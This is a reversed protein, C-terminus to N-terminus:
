ISQPLIKKSAGQRKKNERKEGEKKKDFRQKSSEDNSYTIEKEKGQVKQRLTAM